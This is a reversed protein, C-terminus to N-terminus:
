LINIIMTIRLMIIDLSAILAIAISNFHLGFNNNQFVIINIIYIGIIVYDYM